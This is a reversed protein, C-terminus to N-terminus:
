TTSAPCSRPAPPGLGRDLLSMLPATAIIRTGIPLALLVGIVVADLGLANLWLPMFPM